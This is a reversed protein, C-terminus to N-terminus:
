KETLVGNEFILNAKSLYEPPITIGINKANDLDFM